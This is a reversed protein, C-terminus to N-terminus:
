GYQYKKPKLLSKLDGSEIDPGSGIIVSAGKGAKGWRSAIRNPRAPVAVPSRLRVLRQLQLSGADAPFRESKRARSPRAFPNRAIRADKLIQIGSESDRPSHLEIVAPAAAFPRWNTRRDCRWAQSRKIATRYLIPHCRKTMQCIQLHGDAKDDM